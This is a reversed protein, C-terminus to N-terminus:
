RWTVRKMSPEASTVQRALAGYANAFNCCAAPGRLMLSGRARGPVTSSAHPRKNARSHSKAFDRSMSSPSYAAFQSGIVIEAVDKGRLPRERHTM